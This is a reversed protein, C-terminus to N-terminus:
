LGTQIRQMFDKKINKEEKKLVDQAKKNERLAIEYDEIAKAASSDSILQKIRDLREDEYYALSVDEGKLISVLHKCLTGSLGAPCSCRATLGKDTKEVAITYITGSSGIIDISEKKM